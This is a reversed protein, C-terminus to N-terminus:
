EKYQKINPKKTEAGFVPFDYAGAIEIAVILAIQEPSM